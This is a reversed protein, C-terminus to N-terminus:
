NIERGVAQLLSLTDPADQSLEWIMVGAIHLSAYRTKAEIATIGNYKYGAYTDVYAAAPYLSVITKFFTYTGTGVNGLYGYFPLGLTLKSAACGQDLFRKIHVLADAYTSHNGAEGWNNDYSMIHVFDLYQFSQSPIMGSTYGASAATVLKGLPNLAARLEQVFPVYNGANKITTLTSGEIDIDIGDLNYYNAFAVLNSILNARNAPQLLTAMNGSCNPVVGGALSALVKVGNQHSKTVIYNIESTTADSCVPQGGSIMVGSSNPSFFAINIHTLITLDTNDMISQVNGWSPVYGVVVKGPVVTKSVFRSSEKLDMEKTKVPDIGKSCSFLSSFATLLILLLKLNKMNNLKAQKQSNIIYNQSRQYTNLDM